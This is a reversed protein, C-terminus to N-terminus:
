CYLLRESTVWTRWDELQGWPDAGIELTLSLNLGSDIKFKSPCPYRHWFCRSRGCAGLCSARFAGLCSALCLALLVRELPKRGPLGMGSLLMGSLLRGSLGMESLLRGSLLSRHLAHESGANM